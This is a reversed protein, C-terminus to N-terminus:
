ALLSMKLYYFIFLFILHILLFRSKLRLLDDVYIKKNSILRENRFMRIPPINFCFYFHVFGSGAGRIELHRM